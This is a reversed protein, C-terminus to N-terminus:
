QLTWITEVDDQLLQGESGEFEVSDMPHVLDDIPRELINTPTEENIGESGM